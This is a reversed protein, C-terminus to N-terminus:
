STPGTQTRINGQGTANKQDGGKLQKILEKLYSITGLRLIEGLETQDTPEPPQAQSMALPSVVSAEPPQAGMLGELGQMPAQPQAAAPLPNTAAPAQAMGTPAQAFREKLRDGLSTLFDFQQAM